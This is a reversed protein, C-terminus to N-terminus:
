FSIMARAMINFTNVESIRFRRGPMDYRFDFNPNIENARNDLDVCRSSTDGKCAGDLDKGVSENTLFHETDHFLSANLLLRMQVHESGIGAYIGFTGGVTLYEETYLLKGLADSLENYARGESTYRIHGRIDFGVRQHKDPDDYAYFESGFLLNAVHPARIGTERATWPGVGCNEAYGLLGPNQCNTFFNPAQTPLTYSFLAYPDVAGLRKSLATTFQFRHVKTGINGRNAESTPRSPDNVAATPMTYDFGLTWTPKTDDRVENFLAYKLGVTVDDLGGRFAQGPVAFIPQAGVRRDGQCDPHVLQGRPTICNNFITSNADNTVPRGQPDLGPYGWSRDDNFVFRTGAHLELDQYLGIALWLPMAQEIRTYRLEIVDAIRGEQHRERTIKGRHQTRSFGALFDLDFADQEDFSSAVRTVEAASAAAPALLVALASILVCGFQRTSGM